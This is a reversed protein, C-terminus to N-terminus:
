FHAPSLDMPHDVVRDKFCKGHCFWVQWKGGATEVTIHCPDIDTPLIDEGCFCCPGWRVDAKNINEDM